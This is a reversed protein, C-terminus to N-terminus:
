PMILHTHLTITKSGKHRKFIHPKLLKNKINKIKKQIFDCIYDLETEWRETPEIIVYIRNYGLHAPAKEATKLDRQLDGSDFLWEQTDLPQKKLNYPCTPPDHTNKVDYALENIIVDSIGRYKLNPIIGNDANVILYETINAAVLMFIEQKAVGRVKNMYEEYSLEGTLYFRVWNQFTLHLRSPAAKNWSHGSLDGSKILEKQQEIDYLHDLFKSRSYNTINEKTITFNKESEIFNILNQITSSRLFGTIEQRKLLDIIDKKNSMFKLFYNIIGENEEELM